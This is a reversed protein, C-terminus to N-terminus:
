SECERSSLLNQQLLPFDYTQINTTPVMGAKEVARQSGYDTEFFHVMCALTTGPCQNTEEKSSVRRLATNGPPLFRTKGNFKHFPRTGTVPRFTSSSGVSSLEDSDVLEVDSPSLGIKITDHSIENDNNLSSSDPSSSASEPSPSSSPESLVYKHGYGYQPSVSINYYCRWLSFCCFPPRRELLHSLMQHKPGGSNATPNSGPEVIGRPRLKYDAVPCKSNIASSRSPYDSRTGRRTVRHLQAPGSRHNSENQETAKLDPLSVNVMMAQAHFRRDHDGDDVGGNQWPKSSETIIIATSAALSLRSHFTLNLVM